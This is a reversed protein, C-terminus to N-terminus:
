SQARVRIHTLCFTTREMAAAAREALAHAEILSSATRRVSAHSGNLRWGTIICTIM